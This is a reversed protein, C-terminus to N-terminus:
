ETPIAGPVNGEARDFRSEAIDTYKLTMENGEKDKITMEGTEDNSSIKEYEPNTSIILEATIKEPSDNMDVGLEKLKNAGIIGGIVSIIIVVLILGGCGIGVWAMPHLGKKPTTAPPMTPPLPPQENM